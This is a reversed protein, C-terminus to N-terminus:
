IIKDIFSRIEALCEEHDFYWYSYPLPFVKLGSRYLLKLEHVDHGDEYDGPYGILNIGFYQNEKKCIIDVERGAIPYSPMGNIGMEALEEIVEKMFTEQIDPKQYRSTKHWDNELFDRFVGKKLDDPEVSLFVFQKHKARTIAVNFVDAKNLHYLATSHSQPDVCMSLFMIDREEGQFSYATGCIIKYKSIESASFHTTLLRSLYDVQARFPSLIGISRLMPEQNAEATNILIKLKSILNKAEIANIGNSDRKGECQIFRTSIISSRAPHDTMLVLSGDYFENNSFSIIDPNSRYHENLFIIQDGSPIKNNVLDLISLKRYNFCQEFDTEPLNYKSLLDYSFTASVFSVHRLQQPDGVVVLRRARQLVPLITAIDCQSAEDIIVVDFIEAEMPVVKSVVSTKCLWIPMTKLIERFDTLMNIREREGDSHANLGNRFKLYEQRHERISEESNLDYKKLLLDKFQRETRELQEFFTEVLVWYPIEQGIKWQLYKKKIAHFIGKKDKSLYEGWELEKLIRESLQQESTALLSKVAQYKSESLYVVDKSQYNVVSGVKNLRKRLYSSIKMRFRGSTSAVIMKELGYESKIKEEVVNIAEDTKASILVSKGQAILGATLAAITYSKGTGPPGTVQTIAYNSVADLVAAQADTLKEPLSSFNLAEKVEGQGSFLNRIVVSHEQTKQALQDLESLIGRTQESKKMIGYGVAPLVDFDEDAQEYDKSLFTKLAKNKFLDPYHLLEECRVSELYTEFVRKIKGIAEFDLNGPDYAENLARYFGGDSGTILKSLFNQNLFTNEFDVQLFYLDGERIVEAPHIFVPACLKKKEGFAETDQGTVFFSFLYIGLEKKYVLLDKEVMKGYKDTLPYMGIRGNLIEDPGSIIRGNRIQGSFFNNLQFSRTDAQYCDKFYRIIQSILNKQM